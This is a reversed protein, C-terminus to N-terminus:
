AEIVTLLLEAHDVNLKMSRGFDKPDYRGFVYSAGAAITRSLKTVTQGAVTRHFEVEVTRSVAGSNRAIVITSGTNVVTHDNGADGAVEAPRLTGGITPIISTLATRAM